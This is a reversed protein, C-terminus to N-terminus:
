GLAGSSNIVLDATRARGPSGNLNKLKRNMARSPRYLLDFTVPHAGQGTGGGAPFLALYLLVHAIGPVPDPLSFGPELYLLPQNILLM